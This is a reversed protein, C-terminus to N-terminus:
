QRRQTNRLLALNRQIATSNPELTLARELHAIAEDFNGTAALTMGLDSELDGNGPDLEAARRLEAIAEAPDGGTEALAAGLHWHAPAGNPDLAVARRFEPIAEALRDNQALSIGLINHLEASEPVIAGLYASGAVTRGESNAANRARVVDAPSAGYAVKLLAMYTPLEELEPVPIGDNFCRPCWEAVRDVDVASAPVGHGFALISRVGYEQLPRDDVVPSVERTADALTRASGVFAGVIERVTGLDVRELDARVSPRQELRETLREPDLEIRDANTGILVLDSGAGSLL